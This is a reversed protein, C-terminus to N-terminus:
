TERGDHYSSGYDFQQVITSTTALQWVCLRERATKMMVFVHLSLSNDRSTITAERDFSQLCKLLLDTLETRIAAMIIVARNVPWNVSPRKTAYQNLRSISPCSWSIASTPSIIGIKTLPAGTTVTKFNNPFTIQNLRNFLSSKMSFPRSSPYVLAGTGSSYNRPWKSMSARRILLTSPLHSAALKVM